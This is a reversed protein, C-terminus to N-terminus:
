HIESAEAEAASPAETRRVPLTVRGWLLAVLASCGSGILVSLKATSLLEPTELALGAMFISMTFGIGGVLGVLIVGKWTVATPLAAFKTKIAILSVLVIGVPKGVILGLLVGMALPRNVSEVSVGRLSIGANALAFLPMILFSVWPHLLLQLRTVPSLVERRAVALQRLAGHALHPDKEAEAGVDEVTSAADRAVAAFGDPGFWPKAPALLGAIVGGITPHIGMKLLGVWLLVCPMVYIAPSRVGIRQLLLITGVAGLTLIVGAIAMGKSFFLAIVLIAGIDDIIALALLLVRLAPPVRRGLLALVGVAFAIDTAMPVGWAGEAEGARNFALFISAPVIMGGLAAAIPLVASKWRSLEGHHIERRIELGVVFFFLTMLGENILFHLSAKTSWTGFSLGVETHWLHEYRSAWPSNAWALAVVAALILFVGSAAEM